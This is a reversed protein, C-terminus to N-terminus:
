TKISTKTDTVALSYVDLSPRFDGRTEWQEIPAFHITKDSTLSVVEGPSFERALGFDILVAALTDRHLMINHPKVDRHLLGQNHVCTLADGVQTIINLAEAEGLIGREELYIDLGEGDIYEMVMCWLGKEQFLRPYVAVVHPHRCSALAVAENLFKEQLEHFNPSQQRLDNLTKITVLKGSPQQKALYTIGFGGSGLIKDIVYKGKKLQQGPNWM